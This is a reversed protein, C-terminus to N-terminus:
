NAQIQRSKARCGLSSPPVPAFENPLFVDGNLHCPSRSETRATPSMKKKTITGRWADACNNSRVRGSRGGLSTGETGGPGAWFM